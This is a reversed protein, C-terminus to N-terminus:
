NFLSPNGVSDNGPANQQTDMKLSGVMYEVFQRLVEEGADLMQATEYKRATAENFFTRWYAEQLLKAPTPMVQDNEILYDRMNLAAAAAVQQGGLAAAGLYEFVDSYNHQTDEIAQALPAFIEQTKM